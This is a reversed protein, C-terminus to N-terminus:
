REWQHAVQAASFSRHLALYRIGTDRSHRFADEVQQHRMLGVLIVILDPQNRQIVSRLSAGSPRTERTPQWIVRKLQLALCVKRATRRRTDGGIVLVTKGALQDYSASVTHGKSYHACCRVPMHKQM